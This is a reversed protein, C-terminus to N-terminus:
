QDLSRNEQKILWGSKRCFYGINIQTLLTIGGQGLFFEVQELYYV